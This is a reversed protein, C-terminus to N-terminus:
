KLEVERDILNWPVIKCLVNINAQTGNPDPNGPLEVSTVKLHYWDNRYTKGDQEDSGNAQTKFWCKGDTYEAVEAIGAIGNVTFHKPKDTVAKLTIGTKPDTGSGFLQNKMIYKNAYANYDTSGAEIKTVVYFTETGEAPATVDTVEGVKFAPTGEGSPTNEEISLTKGPTYKVMFDVTTTTTTSLNELTYLGSINLIKESSIADSEYATSGLTIEKLDGDENDTYLNEGTLSWSDNNALLYFKNVMNRLRFNVSHVTGLWETDDTFVTSSGGDTDSSQNPCEATVKVAAREIDVGVSNDTGEQIQVNAATGNKNSMFFSAPTSTGTNATTYYASPASAASVLATSWSDPVANGSVLSSKDAEPVNAYVYFNANGVPVDSLTFSKGKEDTFDTGETATATRVIKTTGYDIVVTVDNITNEDETGAQETLTGPNGKTLPSAINLKLTVPVGNGENKDIGKNDILEDSDCAILALGM